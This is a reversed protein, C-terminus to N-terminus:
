NKICRISFGMKKDSGRINVISQKFNINRSWAIKNDAQTATWWYADMGFGEFNGNATRYGGPLGTFGSENTANINPNIWHTFGMEKLKGGVLSDDGIFKCLLNWEADSPIHWGQPCINRNDILAYYNYLKGYASANFLNNNYDCFAGSDLNSWSTIDIVEPILDGNRYHTVKLNEAMWTQSGITITKYENGDYDIIKPNFVVVKGYSTGSITTAYARFYYTMDINLGIITSTFSGNGSGEITKYDHITPTNNSSYCIGRETIVAGGYSLISGGCTISAFCGETQDCTQKIDSLQSTYVIPLSNTTINNDKTCALSMQLIIFAFVLRYILINIKM